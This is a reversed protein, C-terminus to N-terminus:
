GQAVARRAQRALWYGAPLTTTVAALAWALPTGLWPGLAPMLWRAYLAYGAVSSAGLMMPGVAGAPVAEGQALWLSVMATLFIAPFVSVVGAALDGGIAAVWVAAGIALAAFIGRTMLAGLAVPRSGRPTPRLGRCAALGVGVLLALGGLGLWLTSLGAGVWARSGFVLGVAAVLWAGLSLTTMWALRVGLRREPLRPPLARWLWLFMANLWMGAPVADMARVFAEPDPSEAFIGISAPVITTPLTGLLGGVRGGFREIAVTVGVAM